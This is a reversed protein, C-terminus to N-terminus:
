KKEEKLIGNDESVQVNKIQGFIINIDFDITSHITTKNVVNGKPTKIIGKGNPHDEKSFMMTEKNLKYVVVDNTEANVNYIIFEKIDVKSKIFSRAVPKYSDDLKLNNRIHKEFTQLVIGPDKIEVVDPYQALLDLDLNKSGLAALNSVVLADHVTESESIIAQKSVIFEFLIFLLFLILIGFVASIFAGKKKKLKRGRM